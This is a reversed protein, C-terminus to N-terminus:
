SAAGYKAIRGALMDRKYATNAAMCAPVRCGANYHAYNHVPDPQHATTLPGLIADTLLAADAPGTANAEILQAVAAYQRDTPERGLGLAIFRSDDTPESM